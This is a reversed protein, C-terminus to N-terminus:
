ENLLYKRFAINSFLEKSSVLFATLLSPCTRLELSQYFLDIQPTKPPGGKRRGQVLRLKSWVPHTRKVVVLGLVNKEGVMQGETGRGPSCLWRVDDFKVKGQQDVGVYWGLFWKYEHPVPQSGKGQLM